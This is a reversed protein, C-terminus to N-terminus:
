TYTTQEQPQMRSVMHEILKVTQSQIQQYKGPSLSIQTTLSILKHNLVLFTIIRIKYLPLVLLVQDYVKRTKHDLWALLRHSSWCCHIKSM